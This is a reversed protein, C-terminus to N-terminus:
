SQKKRKRWKEGLRRLINVNCNHAVPLVLLLM